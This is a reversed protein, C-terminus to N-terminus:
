KLPRVSEVGPPDALKPTATPTAVDSSVVVNRFSADGNDFFVPAQATQDAAPENSVPVIAFLVQYWTKKISLISV